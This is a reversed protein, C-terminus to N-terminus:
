GAPALGASEILAIVQPLLREVIIAVGAANPHIGDPQNLGPMAAVGDLFFPYLPVEHHAALEPFLANFREGYDRGLNPPAYMGALLTPLGAADLKALIADLSERTAGPDVGRLGDNGGLAVLVLDPGETLAWDLRAFAGATTDGSVGANLVTVPYGRDRLAAELQVPFAEDPPLGYGATLSDGFALLRIPEAAAIGPIGALLVALVALGINFRRRISGDLRLTSQVFPPFM